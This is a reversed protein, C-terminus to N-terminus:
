LPRGLGGAYDALEDSYRGRFAAYTTAFLALSTQAVVTEGNELKIRLAVSTKGSTMGRPLAGIAELTAPQPDHLDSWPSAELDPRVDVHIM